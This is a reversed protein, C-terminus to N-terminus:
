GFPHLSIRGRECRRQLGAEEILQHFNQEDLRETRVKPFMGGRELDPIGNHIEVAHNRSIATAGDLYGALHERKMGYCMECHTGVQGNSQYTHHVAFTGVQKDEDSEVIRELYIRERPFRKEEM